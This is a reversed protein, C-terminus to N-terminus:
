ADRRAMLVGGIVVTLGAYVAMLAFGVWPTLQHAQPHAAAVSSSLIGEPTYKVVHGPLGALALPAVLMVAALAGIAGAGQRFVTGLGLGFLGILCLFGGSLVVARLVGPQGLTAHPAPGMVAQGVLFMTFTVFEGVVLSVAGYVATKATLVSRRRPIAALTSRIAGSSYENTMVLVGLVGIALMGFALGTLARNTPDFSAKDAASLHAWHSGGVAASLIGFAVSLVVFAAMTWRVSRLSHFKTWESRMVDGIRYGVAQRTALTVATTM